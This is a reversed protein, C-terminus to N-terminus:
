SEEQKRTLSPVEKKVFGTNVKKYTDTNYPQGLMKNVHDTKKMSFM